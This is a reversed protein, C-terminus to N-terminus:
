VLIRSLSPGTGTTQAMSSGAKPGCCISSPLLFHLVVLDGSDHREQWSSVGPLTSSASSASGSSSNLSAISTPPGEGASMLALASHPLAPSLPKWRGCRAKKLNKAKLAQSQQSRSSPPSPTEISRSNISWRACQPKPCLNGQFGRHHRHSSPFACSAQKISPSKGHLPSLFHCM